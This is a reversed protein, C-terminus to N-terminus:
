FSLSSGTLTVSQGSVRRFASHLASIAETMSSSVCSLLYTKLLHMEEFNLLKLMALLTASMFRIIKGDLSMAYSGRVDASSRLLAARHASGPSSPMFTTTTSTEAIPNSGLIAHFMGSTTTSTGVTTPPDVGFRFDLQAFGIRQRLARCNFLPTPVRTYATFAPVLTLLTVRNTLDAYGRLAISDVFLEGIEQLEPHARRLMALAIIPNLVHPAEQLWFAPTSSTRVRRADVLLFRKGATHAPLVVVFPTHGPVLPALTPTCRDGFGAARAITAFFLAPTLHPEVSVDFPASGLQLVM